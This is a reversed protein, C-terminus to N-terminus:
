LLALRVEVPLLALYAAAIWFLLSERAFEGSLVAAAGIAVVAALRVIMALFGRQMRAEPTGADIAVLLGGALAAAIFSVATGAVMSKIGDSGALHRTPSFGIAWLAAVVVASLGLFRAYRRAPQAV